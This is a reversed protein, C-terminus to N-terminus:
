SRHCNKTEFKYIELNTENEEKVKPTKQPPEM